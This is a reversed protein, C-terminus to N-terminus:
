RFPLLTTGAVALKELVLLGPDNTDHHTTVLRELNARVVETRGVCNRPLTTSVTPERTTVESM